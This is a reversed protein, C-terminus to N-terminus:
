IEDFKKMKWAIRNINGIRMQKRHTYIRGYLYSSFKVKSVKNGMELYKDYLEYQHQWRNEEFWDPKEIKIYNVFEELSSVDNPIEATNINNNINIIPQESKKNDILILLMDYIETINENMKDMREDLNIMQEIIENINENSKDIKENNDAINEVIESIQDDIERFKRSYKEANIRGFYTDFVQLLENEPIEYWEGRQKYQSLLEHIANEDRTYDDSEAFRLVESKGVPCYTNYRNMLKEEPGTHKGIKFLNQKRYTTNTIIYVCQM